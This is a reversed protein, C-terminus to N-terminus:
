DDDNVKPNLVISPCRAFQDIACVVDAVLAKLDVRVVGSATPHLAGTVATRPMGVRLAEGAAVVTDLYQRRAALAVGPDPRRGIYVCSDLYAIHEPETVIAKGALVEVYSGDPLVVVRSLFETDIFTVPVAVEGQQADKVM